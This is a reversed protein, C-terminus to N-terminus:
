SVIVQPPVERRLPYEKHLLNSVWIHRGLESFYSTPHNLYLSCRYDSMRELGVMKHLVTM